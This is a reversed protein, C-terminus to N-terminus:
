NLSYSLVANNLLFKQKLIDLPIVPAEEREDMIIKLKEKDLMEIMVKSCELLKEATLLKKNQLNAYSRLITIKVIIDIFLPQTQHRNETPVEIENYFDIAQRFWADVKTWTLNKDRTDGDKYRLEKYLSMAFQYTRHALVKDLYLIEDESLSWQIKRSKQDLEERGKRVAFFHELDKYGKCKVAQNM